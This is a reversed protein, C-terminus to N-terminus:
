KFYRIQAVPPLVANVQDELRRPNEKDGISKAGIIYINHLLSDEASLREARAALPLFIFHALVAGYFTTILAVAMNPGISAPTNLEGLMQILGVLTGILGMAPAVEGARRLVDVMKLARSEIAAAEREMIHEVEHGAAGDIVLRVAKQLFSDSRYLPHKELSLLGNKRAQESLIIVSEAAESLEPNKSKLLHAITKPVALLEASRFSIMTVAFTGIIVIMLGQANVFTAPTGGLLVASVLLILATLFGFIATM